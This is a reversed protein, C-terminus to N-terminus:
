RAPHAVRFDAAPAAPLDIVSATSVLFRTKGYILELQGVIGGTRTLAVRITEPAGIAQLLYPSSVVQGDLSVGDSAKAFWSRPGVRHGNIGVAEAGANRVENVLDSMARDDFPGDIRVEVGAGSVATAGSAVQVQQYQERLERLAVESSQSAGQAADLRLRLQLIEDRLASNRDSIQGILTTLSSANEATLSRTFVDQARYQTVALVGLVLAVATLAVIGFRSRRM